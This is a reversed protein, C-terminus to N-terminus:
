WPSAPKWWQCGRSRPNDRSATSGPLLEPLRTNGQERPPNLFLAVIVVRGMAARPTRPNRLM